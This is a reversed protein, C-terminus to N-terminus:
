LLLHYPDLKRGSLDGARQPLPRPRGPRRLATRCLYWRISRDVALGPCQPHRIRSQSRLCPQRPAPAPAARSQRAIGPRTQSGSVYRALFATSYEEQEQSGPPATWPPLSSRSQDPGPVLRELERGLRRPRAGPERSAASSATWPRTCFGLAALALAYLSLGRARWCPQQPWCLAGGVCGHDAGGILVARMEYKRKREWERGTGPWGCKQRQLIRLFGPFVKLSEKFLTQVGTRSPAEPGIPRPKQGDAHPSQIQGCKPLM